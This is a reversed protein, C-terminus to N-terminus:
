KYELLQVYSLNFRYLFARINFNFFIIWKKMVIQELYYIIVRLALTFKKRYFRILVLNEDAAGIRRRDLGEPRLRHLIPRPSFSPRVDGHRSSFKFHETLQQMTRKDVVLEVVIASCSLIVMNSANILGKRWSSEWVDSCWLMPWGENLSNQHPPHVTRVADGTIIVLTDSFGKSFREGTDEPLATLEMKLLVGPNM